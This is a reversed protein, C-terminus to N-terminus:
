EKNLGLKLKLQMIFRFATKDTSINRQEHWLFYEFDRPSVGFAADGREHKKQYSNYAKSWYHNIQIDPREGGTKHIGFQVFHGFANIPPITLGRYRVCFSHMMGLSFGSIDFSTQYFLKGINTLKSWSTTYQETVLLRNDHDILGSTGFMKWYVMVIPYKEFKKIWIKLSNNYLPTIFEDLDLFSVWRTEHRHTEYWNKYSSIQGPNEPWDILSVVGEKIYPHLVELYNDNSNNNYLYFHDVGVLLHYEIWEKLFPAENKFIACISINYKYDREDKSKFFM